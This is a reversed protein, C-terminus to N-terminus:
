NREFLLLELEAITKVEYNPLISKARNIVHMYDDESEIQTWAIPANLGMNKQILRDVPFHPPTPVNGLCWQYKLYLNLLKQSVGFNLQGNTLIDGFHKSFECVNWINQLHANESVPKNYNSEVLNTIDGILKNKFYKKEIANEKVDPKYVNARQFSAGITLLWIEKEIFEKKM